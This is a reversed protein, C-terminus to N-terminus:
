PLNSSGNLALAPDPEEAPEHCDLVMPFRSSVKEHQRVRRLEGFISWATLVLSGGAVSWVVAASM